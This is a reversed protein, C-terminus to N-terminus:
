KIGGKDLAAEVTTLITKKDQGVAKGAAVLDNVAKDFKKANNAPTAPRRAQAGKFAARVTAEGRKLADFSDKDKLLARMRSAQSKASAEQIGRTEMLTKILVPNSINDRAIMECIEVLFTAAKETAADHQEILKALATNVEVKAKTKAETKAETGTGTGTGAAKGGNGTAAAKKAAMFIMPQGLAVAGILARILM